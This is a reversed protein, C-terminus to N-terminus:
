SHRMTFYHTTTHMRSERCIRLAVPDLCKEFPDEEVVRACVEENQLLTSLRGGLRLIIHGAGDEADVLGAEILRAEPRTHEWILSTVRTTVKSLPPFYQCCHHTRHNISILLLPNILCGMDFCCFTSVSGSDYRRTPQRARYKTGRQAKIYDPLLYTAV